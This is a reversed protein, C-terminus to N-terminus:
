LYRYCLLILGIVSISKKWKQYLPDQRESMEQCTFNLSHVGGLLYWDYNGFYMGNTTRLVQMSPPIGFFQLKVQALGFLPRYDITTDTTNVWWLKICNAYEHRLNVARDRELSIVEVEAVPPIHKWSLNSSITFPVKFFDQLETLQIPPLAMNM